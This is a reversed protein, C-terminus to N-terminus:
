LIPEFSKPYNLRLTVSRKSMQFEAISGSWIMLLRLNQSKQSTMLM